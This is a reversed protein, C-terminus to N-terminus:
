LTKPAIVGTEIAGFRVSKKKETKPNNQNERLEIELVQVVSFFVVSTM